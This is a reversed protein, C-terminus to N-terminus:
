ADGPEAAVAAPSPDGTPEPRSGALESDSFDLPELRRPICIVALIGVLAVLAGALFVAHTAHLLGSRVYTAADPALSAKGGGLVDSAVNVSRPLTRALSTPAAALWSALSSNAVSGFVAIGLASGITRAFLNAATVVGRREWGVLSQQGVLVPTSAFGMGIGAIFGFLAAVLIPSDRGLLLFLSSGLLTLVAGLLATARFGIALYIRGAYSAALPWGLTISAVTLGSVLPDVHRVGQAWTPIYSSLGLLCAGITITAINGSVLVRRHFVWPPVLPENAHREVLGFSLLLALGAGLTAIEAPSSWSWSSGGQLLAFITAALGLTLVITGLYDIEHERREVTEHLHSQLLYVALAGIPLNVYFIWRWSVYQSFVGGILPGLVSAIGWVSATYGTVRAREPVSYLDGVVTQVIPIIAGAGLGQLGRFAILSEMNWALGSLISGLLFIGIGAFLVPKRGFVDATRGYIPVTVAQTLLYVSFLWPFLSFGGLDRVISPVATTVVTTDLAALALTMMLAALVARRPDGRRGPRASVPERSADTSM